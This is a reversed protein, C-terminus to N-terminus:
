CSFDSIQLNSPLVTSEFEPPFLSDVGTIVIANNTSNIVELHFDFEEGVAIKKPVWLEAQVECSEVGQDLEAYLKKVEEIQFEADALNGEKALAWAYETRAITEYLRPYLTSKHLELSEEFLGYAERYHNQAALFVAKTRVGAAKAVKSGTQSIEPFFKMFKEFYEQANALDGIRSYQITLNAYAMSQIYFADTKESLEKGISTESIAAKFDGISELLVGSYVHAWAIKNYDGIIEGAHIAKKYCDLAEQYLRCNFFVNGAIFYTEAQERYDNSGECLGLSRTVAMLAKEVQVESAYFNAAEVLADTLDPLANSEEFVRRAEELDTLGEIWNGRLGTIIGKQMRVRAYEIRDLSAFDRAKEALELSHMLDGRWRSSVVAKRLARFKVVSRPAFNSLTEFTTTAEEFLNRAYLSDGLGELATVRDSVYQPENQVTELVYNFYRAAEINSFKSLADQGAALAYKTAKEKNGAKLYHYALDSFPLRGDTQHAAKSRRQM